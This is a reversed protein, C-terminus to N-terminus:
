SAAGALRRLEERAVEADDFHSVDAGITQTTEHGKGAILVVDGDRAVVDTMIRVRHRRQSGEGRRTAPGDQVDIPFWGQATTM